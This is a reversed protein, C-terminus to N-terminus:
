FELITVLSLDHCFLLIHKKGMKATDPNSMMDNGRRERLLIQKMGLGEVSRDGTIQRSPFETKAQQLIAIFM